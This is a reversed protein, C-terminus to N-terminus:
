LPCVINLAVYWVILLELFYKVWNTAWILKLVLLCTLSTMKKSSINSGYCLFSVFFKFFMILLTNYKDLNSVPWVASEYMHKNWQECLINKHTVRVLFCYQEPGTWVSPYFFWPAIKKQKQNTKEKTINQKM